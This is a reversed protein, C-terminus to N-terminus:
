LDAGPLAHGFAWSWGSGDTNCGIARGAAFVVTNVAGITRVEESIEDLLPLVVQKCPYTINLGAFGMIRAAEILGPLAEVGRGAQDLDILQYHLPLGQQRAEEEHLAPALSRQIGGGILGCLMSRLMM